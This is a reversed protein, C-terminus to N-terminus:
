GEKMLSRLGVVERKLRGNEKRLKAVEEQAEKLKSRTEEVGEGKKVKGLIKGLEDNFREYLAENEANAERYLEDLKRAKKDSISLSSEIDSSLSSLSTTHAMTFTSLTTSLSSLQTSLTQLSPPASPPQTQPKAKTASRQLKYVSSIEEGIKAIEAQFSSDASALSKNEQSLRERLKQPSQMRLKQPSQFPTKPLNSNGNPPWTRESLGGKPAPIGSRSVQRRQPSYSTIVVEESKNKDALKASPTRPVSPSNSKRSFTERVPSNEKRQPSGFRRPLGSLQPSQKTIGQSPSQKIPSQTRPPTAIKSNSERLTAPKRPQLPSWAAIVDPDRISTIDSLSSRRHRKKPLPTTKTPTGEGISSLTSTNLHASGPRPKPDDQTMSGSTTPRDRSVPRSPPLMRNDTDTSRSRGLSAKSLSTSHFHGEGPSRANKSLTRWISAVKSESENKSNERSLTGLGFRRKLSSANSSLSGTNISRTRTLSGTASRTNGDQDLQKSPDDFLSDYDDVLRDLLTIYDHPNGDLVLAEAFSAMLAGRDGDNGSADLLDSLLKVTAAFARSNQPSMDEVSRKFQQSFVAPRGSDFTAQLGQLVNAALLPGMRERWARQLFKEFAAFLVDVSVEAAAQLRSPDELLINYLENVVLEDATARSRLVKGVVNGSRSRLAVVYATFTDELLALPSKEAEAATEVLTVKNHPHNDALDPHTKAPTPPPISPTNRIPPIDHRHKSPTSPQSAQGANLFNSIMKVPSIPRFVRSRTDEQPKRIPMAALITSNYSIQSQILLPNQPQNQLRVLNGLRRLLVSLLDESKCTDTFCTGDISETDLRYSGSGLTKISAAIETGHGQTTISDTEKSSDVHLRIQCQGQTLNTSESQEELLAVLVGLSGPSPNISRLAWKGSDRTADSFRSEIRAKIVEEGFRAAKGDYPGLALFVKTLSQSHRSTNLNVTTGGFLTMRILHGSESESFRLQSLDYAGLFKLDKDLSLSSSFFANTPTTPRDVEAIIGRASLPSNGAKQLLVISDVFLLMIGATGEGNTAYPPNLELVDVATILRGRASFTAPWDAVINRLIKASRAVDGPLQTDLACIDTIVDRAKLLSSLAPHSAPLLSTMNDILLSYRPLRQVPEILASRLRQEGFDHLHKSLASSQDALSQSIINSFDTSARLYDQYPGMFRPFWRLLAKAFHLTGTPDRRRGQTIPSGLDSESSTNGEIDNIAENETEDLVAQIDEYFRENTELIRNLSEPFLGNVIESRAIQRFDAAIFQVLNQIKGTYSSETDVLECMERRLSIKQDKSLVRSRSHATPRSPARQLKSTPLFAASGLCEIISTYQGYHYLPLGDNDFLPTNDEGDSSKARQITGPPLVVDMDVWSLVPTSVASMVCNAIESMDEIEVMNAAIDAAHMEDFMMPAARNPRRVAAREILSTKMAKPLGAFYSLVSVALGRCIEDGQQEAPLHNVAAYLPSTPAVTLRPFTQLGALSYIHAQIRSSNQTSNGTTSPGYFVLIPLNELLADKAYYLSLNSSSLAPPTASLIIM